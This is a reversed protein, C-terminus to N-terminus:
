SQGDTRVAAERFAHGTNSRTMDLASQRMCQPSTSIVSEGDIWRLAREQPCLTIVLGAADLVKKVLFVQLGGIALLVVEVVLERHPMEDPLTASAREEEEDVGHAIVHWPVDPPARVPSGITPLIRPLREFDILIQAPLFHTYAVVRSQQIEELRIEPGLSEQDHAETVVVRDERSVKEVRVCRCGVQCGCQLPVVCAIEGGVVRYVRDIKRGGFQGRYEFLDLRRM